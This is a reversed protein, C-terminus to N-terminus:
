PAFAHHCKPCEVTKKTTRTPEPEPPDGEDFLRLLQGDDYGTFQLDFGFERLDLLEPVLLGYDIVAKRASENDALRAARREEKSLHSLDLVPGKNPDPNRPIAVGRDRLNRAAMRRGHGYILVGGAVAMPATWGFKVLLHELLAIQEPPHVNANNEYERLDDLSKYRIKLGFPPGSDAAERARTVRSPYKSGGPAAGGGEATDVTAEVSTDVTPTVKPKNKSGPRRGGTKRGAVM